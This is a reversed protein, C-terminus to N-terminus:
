EPHTSESQTSNQQQHQKAVIFVALYPELFLAKIKERVAKKFHKIPQTVFRPFIKTTVSQSYFPTRETFSKERM